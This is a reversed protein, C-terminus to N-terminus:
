ESSRVEAHNATQRRRHFQNRTGRIRNYAWALLLLCVGASLSIISTVSLAAHQTAVRGSDYAAGFAVGFVFALLAVKDLTSLTRKQFTTAVLGGGVILLTVIIQELRSVPLDPRNPLHGKAIMILGNIVGYFLIGPLVRVWREIKWILVVTAAAICIWGTVRSHEVPYLAIAMGGFLLGATVIGLLANGAGRFGNELQDIDTRKTM